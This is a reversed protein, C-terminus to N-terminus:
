EPVKKPSTEKMYRIAWELTAAEIRIAWELTAAEIQLDHADPWRTTDLDSVVRCNKARREFASICQACFDEMQGNM